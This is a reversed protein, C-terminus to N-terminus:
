PGPDPDPEPDVVKFVVASRLKILAGSVRTEILYKQKNYDIDFDDFMTVNGGSDAGINYDSLNVMVGCLGPHDEMPEVTVISEVRLESALEDVSRYIRRGLTDRLLLAKTLFIETTFFTPTGSGRYKSRSGIIVDLATMIEAATPDASLTVNESVTYLSADRAVPRINTENIKDEDLVDRGDGLLIARAIEEDLMMRMESKLWTVVDFDTIDIVDDRDLAQKKYITTPTTTRRLLGFYEEKKLAGKVYGKARADELTLDAQTTRVRSFPSRRVGGLVKNVWEMRRAYFEPTTNFEKADPFLQGIDTIGHSLAYDNVAASMSGKQKADEMIGLMDAHSLVHKGQTEDKNQEFVNSRSMDDGKMDTNSHKVDDSTDETTEEGGDLGAELAETLMYHLVNKQKDNMTDIVDQITEEDDEGDDEDAEDGVEPEEHRLESYIIAEDEIFEETGDAHRITVSDITAGPNAGALVLSVERIAGHMVRGSQEVLNNAWISMKDVDGHELVAAAHKAKATGNFFGYCYMGDDRAELLAHGLVNEPNSHGHHWVLPVKVNDQHAFAGPMITRGDSCKLGSKTAYGSFDADM